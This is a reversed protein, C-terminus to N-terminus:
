EPAAPRPAAGQQYSRIKQPYDQRYQEHFQALGTSFEPLTIGLETSLKQTSLWLNHARRASLNSRDVSLAQIRREDLGFRRAIEVGFQYKTMAEPGVVHYLGHLKAKIMMLLVVGLHNALMPCFTVDTFGSVMNGQTLNDIFFEALSRRGSLSWGYFNVRAVIALPDVFLVAQEGEYKSLAYAGSPNPADSESYSGAKEGNFVADTSIHVLRIRRRLCSEALRSPLETNTARALEPERECLDVDAIAACHIVAEPRTQELVREVAHPELLDAQIVAFPTGVLNTRVVGTVEHARSADLAVNFGLLGSAGTILLRM